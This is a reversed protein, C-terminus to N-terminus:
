DILIGEQRIPVDSSRGISSVGTLDGSESRSSVQLAILVQWPVVM